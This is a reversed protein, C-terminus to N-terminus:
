PKLLRNVRAAENKLFDIDLFPDASIRQFRVAGQADILFTGHVPANEFDDFARYAHFLELNPDSLIPMPFKIGDANEKLRKTAELDDTSIAVLETNLKKLDGIAKGFDQLQQMCHACKGGLFFLVVVNKGKHEALSWPKGQTDPKVFPEAPDPSWTLPGLTNLDVRNLTADDTGQAHEATPESWNKDAKWGAVIPALRQFVPLDRDAHKALPALKRYAAQAPKDKGVAHLVEVQEALPPVQNPQKAVAQRAVSEAFGFNRAQLHVRALAEPRMDTAKAFQEFAPGVEEKL